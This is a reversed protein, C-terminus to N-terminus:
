FSFSIGAVGTIGYSAYLNWIETRRNLLNWVSLFTGLQPTIKYSCTASLLHLDDLPQFDESETYAYRGGDWHYEAQLTLHEGTKLEIGLNAEWNPKYWLHSGAQAFIDSLVDTEQTRYAHYHHYRIDANLHCVQYLAVDARLAAYFESADVSAINFLKSAQKLGSSGIAPTVNYFLPLNNTTRFGIEPSFMCNELPRWWLDAHMLLPTYDPDIQLDPSLFPNMLLGERYSYCREGGDLFIGAAAKEGLDRRASATLAAKLQHGNSLRAGLSMQWYGWQYEIEPHIEFWLRNDLDYPTDAYSLFRAQADMVATWDEQFHWAIRGRANSESELPGQPLGPMTAKGLRFLHEELSVAYDVTKDWPKSSMSIWARTDSSWQQDPIQGFGPAPADAYYHWSRFRESLGAELQSYGLHLKYNLQLRNDSNWGAEESPVDQSRHWLNLDLTQRSKRLINWQGDGLFALHNGGGLRLYGHKQQDPFSTKAEAAKLAVLEKDVDLPNGSLAFVVKEKNTKISEQGPSQYIKGANEITPIYEKELLIARRILSDTTQASLVGCCLACLLSLSVKKM